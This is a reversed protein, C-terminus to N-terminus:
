DEKKNVYENILKIVQEKGNSQKLSKYEVKYNNINKFFNNIENLLFTPTLEQEKIVKGVGLNEYYKANLTQDGRTAKNELPILLMPLQKFFCEATVGAGSRGVVFDSINYLNVMDNVMEFANYNDYSKIKSNGKGTIHIVNFDKLLDKLIAFINDNIKKSGLSGCV